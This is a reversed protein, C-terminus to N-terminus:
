VDLQLLHPTSIAKLKVSAIFQPTCNEEKPRSFDGSQSQVALAIKYTLFKYVMIDWSNQSLDLSSHHSHSANGKARSPQEKRDGIARWRWESSTKKASWARTKCTSLLHMCKCNVFLRRPFIESVSPRSPPSDSKRKRKLYYGLRPSSRVSIKPLTEFGTVRYARQEQQSDRTRATCTSNEDPSNSRWLLPERWTRKGEGNKSREEGELLWEVVVKRLDALLIPRNDVELDSHGREHHHVVVFHGCLNKLSVVELKWASSSNKRITLWSQFLRMM